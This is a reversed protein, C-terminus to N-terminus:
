FSSHNLSAWGIVHESLSHLLRWGTTMLALKVKQYSVIWFVACNAPSWATKVERWGLSGSSINELQGLGVAGKGDVHSIFVERASHRFDIYDVFFRCFNSLSNRWHLAPEGLLELLPHMTASEVGVMRRWSIHFVMLRENRWETAIIEFFPLPRIRPISTNFCLLFEICVFIVEIIEFVFKTFILVLDRLM